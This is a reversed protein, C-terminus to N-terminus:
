KKLKMIKSIMTANRVYDYNDREAVVHKQKKRERKVADVVFEDILQYMITADIM